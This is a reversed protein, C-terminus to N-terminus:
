TSPRTASLPNRTLDTGTPDVKAAGEVKDKKAAKKLEKYEAIEGQSVEQPVEKGQACVAPLSFFAVAAASVFISLLKNLHTDKM